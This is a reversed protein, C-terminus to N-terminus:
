ISDTDLKRQFGHGTEVLIRVFTLVFDIKNAQLLSKALEASLRTKGSGPTALCMFHSQTKFWNLAGTLCNSQWRRLKM